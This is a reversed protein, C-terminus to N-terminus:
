RYRARLMREAEDIPVGEGREISALAEAIEAKLVGHDHEEELDADLMALQHDLVLAEVVEGISGHAGEAVRDRLWQVTEPPVVIELTEAMARDEMPSPYWPNQGHRGPGSILNRLSLCKDATAKDSAAEIDEGIEVMDTAARHSIM